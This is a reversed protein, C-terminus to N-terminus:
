HFICLDGCIPLFLFDIIIDKKFIIFIGIQSEIVFGKRAKATSNSPKRSNGAGKM